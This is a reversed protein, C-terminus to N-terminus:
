SESSRFPPLFRDEAGNLADFGFIGFKTADCLAGHRMDDICIRM